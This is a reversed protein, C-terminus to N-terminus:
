DVLMREDLVLVPATTSVGGGVTAVCIRLGDATGHAADVAREMDAALRANGVVYQVLSGEPLEGLLRDRAAQLTSETRGMLTVAPGDRALQLACASGIGGGGGTVLAAMGTLAGSVDDGRAGHPPCTVSAVTVSVRALSSRSRTSAIMAVSSATS